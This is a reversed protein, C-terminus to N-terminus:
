KQYEKKRILVYLNRKESFHPQRFEGSLALENARKGDPEEIIIPLKQEMLKQFTKASKTNNELENVITLGTPPKIM